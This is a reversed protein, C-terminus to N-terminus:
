SPHQTMYISVIIVSQDFINTPEYEDAEIYGSITRREEKDDWYNNGSLQSHYYTVYQIRNEVDHLCHVFEHFLSGSLSKLGKTINKREDVYYYRREPIGVGSSDYVNLNIWVDYDDYSSGEQKVLPQGYERSAINTITLESPDKKAILLRFMTKGVVNNCIDDLSKSLLAKGDDTFGALTINALRSRVDTYPVSEFASLEDDSKLHIKEADELFAEENFM